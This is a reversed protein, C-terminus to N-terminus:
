IAWGLWLVLGWRVLLVLLFIALFVTLSWELSRVWWVRGRFFGALSWPILGLCVLALLTGVSNARLSNVVDGRVLLAFSTTMGCSPCPVGTLDYFTCRPFGLQRHTERSRPTGDPNYPDLYVALGFMGILFAGVALLVVRVWRKLVPAPTGPNGPLEHTVLHPPVIAVAEEHQLTLIRLPSIKKVTRGLGPILRRDLL